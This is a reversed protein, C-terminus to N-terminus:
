PLLDELRAQETAAAQEKTRKRKAAAARSAVRYRHYENPYPNRHLRPAARHQRIWYVDEILAVAAISSLDRPHKAMQGAAYDELESWDGSTWEVNLLIELLRAHAHRDATEARLAAILDPTPDATM